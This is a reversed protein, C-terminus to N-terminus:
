SKEGAVALDVDTQVDDLKPGFCEGDLHRYRGDIETVVTEDDGLLCNCRRCIAFPNREPTIDFDTYLDTLIVETTEEREHCLLAARFLDRCKRAAKWTETNSEVEVEDDRNTEQEDLWDDLDYDAIHLREQLVLLADVVPTTTDTIFRPM